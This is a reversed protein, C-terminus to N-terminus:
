RLSAASANQELNNIYVAFLTPGLVSGQPAGKTVSPYCSCDHVADHVSQKHDSLYNSFLDTAQDPFGIDLLRHCLLKHHVTDFAKSLDIFLTM